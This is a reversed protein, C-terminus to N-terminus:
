EHTLGRVNMYFVQYNALLENLGDALKQAQQEDLGIINEAM